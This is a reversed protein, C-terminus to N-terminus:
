ATFKCYPKHWIEWRVKFTYSVVSGQSIRIIFM